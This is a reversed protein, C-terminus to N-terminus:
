LEAQLHQVESIGGVPEEITEFDGSAVAAAKSELQQLPRIIQRAGFWLAGIAFLLPAILVLPAVLTLELAPNTATPWASEPLSARMAQQHIAVSGVALVMLLVTLPLIILVLLQLSLGRQFFSRAVKKM